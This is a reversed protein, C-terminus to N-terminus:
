ELGLYRNLKKSDVRIVRESLKIEAKSRKALQRMAKDPLNYYASAEKITLLGSNECGNVNTAM